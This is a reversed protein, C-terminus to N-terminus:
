EPNEYQQIYGFLKDIARSNCSGCGNPISREGTAKTALVHLSELQSNTLVRPKKQYEILFENIQDYLEKNLNFKVVSM